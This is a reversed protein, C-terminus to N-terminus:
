FIVIHHVITMKIYLTFQEISKVEFINILERISLLQRTLDSSIDDKYLQTFDYSAKILDEESLNVLTSPQLFDFNETIEKLGHFRNSLQFIVTDIVPLFVRVKFNDETVNLRRDGDVEEFHKIAFKSRVEHYDKSIGWKDCMKHSTLILDDYQNRLNQIICNAEQLKQCANHLNTNKCQLSQSVGYLPRLIKEWLCLLLVFEIKELKKKLANAINREEKKQSTLSINSLSKLVDIFRVKLAYISVHRSEWRTPCVKKLVRQKIKNADVEGFALTAWRPASSSFFNFVAQVTEFFMLVKQNSKAADSIILNLNHACVTYM